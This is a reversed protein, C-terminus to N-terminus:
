EGKKSKIASLLSMIKDYTEHDRRSLGGCVSWMGEILHICETKDVGKAKEILPLWKKLNLGHRDEDGTGWCHDCIGGTVVQGGIGGHWTATSGYAKIGLGNCEHCPNEVGRLRWLERFCEGKTEQDTKRNPYEHLVAIALDLEKQQAKSDLRFMALWPLIREFM